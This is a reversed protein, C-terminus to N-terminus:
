IREIGTGLGSQTEVCSHGHRKSATLWWFLLMNHSIIGVLVCLLIFFFARFCLAHHHYIYVMDYKEKWTEANHRMETVTSALDRIVNEFLEHSARWM